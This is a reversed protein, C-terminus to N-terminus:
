NSQQEEEKWVGSILGVLDARTLGTKESFRTLTEDSLYSVELPITPDDWFLEKEPIDEFGSEKWSKATFLTRGKLRSTFKGGVVMSGPMQSVGNHKGLPLGMMYMGVEYQKMPDNKQQSHAIINHIIVKTQEAAIYAFQPSNNACDGLAFIHDCGDKQIQLTKKVNIRKNKDNIVDKLFSDDKIQGVRAGNCFFYCIV